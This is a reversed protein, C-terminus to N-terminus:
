GREKGVWGGVSSQGWGLEEQRGEQRRRLPSPPFSGSNRSNAYLVCRHVGLSLTNSALSFCFKEERAGNEGRVTGLWFLMSFAAAVPVNCAFLSLSKEVAL